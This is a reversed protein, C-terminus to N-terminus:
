GTKEFWYKTLGTYYNSSLPNKSAIKCSLAHHGGTAVVIGAISVKVNYTLAGAYFDKSGILNGDLYWDLIGQLNSNVGLIYLTYIGTELTIDHEFEDNIAAPNQSAAVNYAQSALIFSTIAAGTIIRAEDHWIAYELLPVDEFKGRGASLVSVQPM